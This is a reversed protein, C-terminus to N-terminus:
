GFIDTSTKNALKRRKVVKTSAKRKATRKRTIPKEFMQGKIDNFTDMSVEKVGQKVRNTLSSKISKGQSADEIVRMGTELAKKGVNVLSKKLVPAFSRALGKFFGGVGYGRQLTVGGRYNPLGYGYQRYHRPIHSLAKKAM